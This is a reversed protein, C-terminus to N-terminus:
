QLLRRGIAICVQYWFFAGRDLEDRIHSMVTRVDDNSKLVDNGGLEVITTLISEVGLMMAANFHTKTNPSADSAVHVQLTDDLGQERFTLLLREICSPIAFSTLGDDAGDYDHIDSSVQFEQRQSISISQYDQHKQRHVSHKSGYRDKGSSADRYRCRGVAPLGWARYGAIM